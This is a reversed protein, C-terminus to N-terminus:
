YIVSYACDGVRGQYTGFGDSSTRYPWCKCEGTDRDCDGRGSCEFLRGAGDEVTGISITGGVLNAGDPILDPLDGLESTFTIDVLPTTVDCVTSTDATIEVTGITAMAVIASKLEQITATASIDGSSVGRFTLTFSGGTADCQIVQTENAITNNDTGVQLPYSLRADFSYPCQLQDLNLGVYASINHIDEVYGYEDAMCGFIRDADWTEPDYIKEGYVVPAPDYYTPDKHSLALTRMSVCRGNGSCKGGEVSPCAQRECAAGEYGEHCECNGSDRDCRGASSCEVLVDHAIDDVIPEQFWSRGVPCTRHRCSGFYGANCECKWKGELGLCRGNGYCDVYEGFEPESAGTDIVIGVPIKPEAGLYGQEATVFLEKALEPTWVEGFVTYTSEDTYFEAEIFQYYKIRRLSTDTWLLANRVDDIQLYLPEEMETHFTSKKAIIEEETFDDLLLYAPYGIDVPRNSPLVSINWYDKFQGDIGKLYEPFDLNTKVIAGPPSPDIFYVTDNRFDIKIDTINAPM